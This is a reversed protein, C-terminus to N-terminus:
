DPLPDRNPNSHSIFLTKTLPNLGTPPEKPKSLHRQFGSQIAQQRNFEGAYATLAIAPIRRVQELTRIQQLM